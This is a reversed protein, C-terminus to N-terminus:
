RGRVSGRSNGPSTDITAVALLVAHLPTHLPDGPDFEDAVRSARLTAARRHREADPAASLTDYEWRELEALARLAEAYGRAVLATPSDDHDAIAAVLGDAALDLQEARDTPTTTDSAMAEFASRRAALHAGIM